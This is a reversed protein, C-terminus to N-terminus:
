NFHWLPWSRAITERIGESLLKLKAVSMKCYSGCLHRWYHSLYIPQNVDSTGYLDGKIIHKLLTKNKM